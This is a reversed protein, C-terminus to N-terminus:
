PTRPTGYKEILEERTMWSKQVRRTEGGFHAIAEPSLPEEDVHFGMRRAVDPHEGVLWSTGVVERVNAFAPDERLRRALERMGNRFDVLKEGVELTFAVAVHIRFTTDDSEDFKGYLMQEPSLPIGQAAEVIRAREEREEKRLHEHFQEATESDRYINEFAEGLKEAIVEPFADDDARLMEDMRSLIPAVLEERGKFFRAATARTREMWEERAKAPDASTRINAFERQFGALLTPRKFRDPMPRPQRRHETDM